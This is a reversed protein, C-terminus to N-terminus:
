WGDSFRDRRSPAESLAMWPCRRGMGSFTLRPPPLAICLHTTLKTRNAALTRGSAQPIRRAGLRVGVGDDIVEGGARWPPIAEPLAFPGLAVPKAGGARGAETTGAGLANAGTCASPLQGVECGM